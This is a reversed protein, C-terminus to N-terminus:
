STPLAGYSVFNRRNLLGGKLSRIEKRFEDLVRKNEEIVKRGSRPGDSSHSQSRSNLASQYKMYSDQHYSYALNSNYFESRFAELEELLALAPTKSPDSQNVRKRVLRTLSELADCIPKNIHCEGLDAKDKSVLPKGDETVSSAAGTDLADGHTKTSTSRLTSPLPTQNISKTEVGHPSECQGSNKIEEPTESPRIADLYEVATRYFSRHSRAISVLHSLLTSHSKLASSKLSLLTENKIRLRPYLYRQFLLVALGSLSGGLLVMNSLGFLFRILMQNSTLPVMQDHYILDQYVEFGRPPIPPGDSLSADASPPAVAEMQDQNGVEPDNQLSQCRDVQSPHVGLAINSSENLNNVQSQVAEAGDELTPIDSSSPLHDTSPSRSSM